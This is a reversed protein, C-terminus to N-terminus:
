RPFLASWSAEKVEVMVKAGMDVAKEQLQRWVYGVLM